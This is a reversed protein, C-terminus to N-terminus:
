LRSYIAKPIPYTRKNLVAGLVRVNAEALTSIARRAAERHTSHAALVLVVGDAIRGLTLADDSENVPPADVIVHTFEAGLAEFPAKLREQSMMGSPGPPLASGSLLWLNGGNLPQAFNLVPGQQVIAEAPQSQTEIGFYRHLMPSDFNADVLCVKGYAHAALAEGARACVWSCGDGHEVGAFVVTRCPTPAGTLFLRNILKLIEGRVRNPSRGHDHGNGAPKSVLDTRFLELDKEAARLVEYNKSM